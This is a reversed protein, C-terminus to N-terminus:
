DLDMQVHLVSSSGVSCRVVLLFVFPDVGFHHRGVSVGFQEQFTM